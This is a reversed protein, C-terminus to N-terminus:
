FILPRDIKDDIYSVWFRAIARDYADQPLISPANSWVEDIYEVIISSECISKDGHILVPVKNYVPNSRLLDSKSNLDEEINEYELGEIKARIVFPSFFWGGLLKLDSSKAAM